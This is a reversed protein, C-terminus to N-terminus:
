DWVERGVCWFCRDFFVNVAESGTNSIHYLVEAAGAFIGSVNEEGSFDRGELVVVRDKHFHHFLLLFLEGFIVPEEGGDSVVHGTVRPTGLFGWWWGGPRLWL